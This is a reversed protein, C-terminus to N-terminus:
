GSLHQSTSWSTELGPWLEGHNKARGELRETRSGSGEKRGGLLYCTSAQQQTSEDAQKRGTSNHIGLLRMENTSERYRETWARIKASIFETPRGQIETNNAESFLVVGM